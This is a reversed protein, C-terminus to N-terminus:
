QTLSSLVNAESDLFMSEWTITPRQNFEKGATFSQKIFIYSYEVDRFFSWISVHWDSFAFSGSIIKYVLLSLPSLSGIEMIISYSKRTEVPAFCHFSAQGWVESSLCLCFEKVLTLWKVCFLHSLKHFIRWLARLIPMARIPRWSGPYIHNWKTRLPISENTSWSEGTVLM